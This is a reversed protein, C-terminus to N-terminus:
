SLAALWGSQAQITALLAGAVIQEGYANLHINSALVHWSNSGQTDQGGTIRAAMTTYLDCYPASLDTAAGQQLGRLTQNAALQVSTTDGSAAFNDFHRGVVIIKQCGASKLANGIVGINQRTACNITAGVAPAGSLAPSVTLLDTAQATVQVIQSNITIYSGQPFRVGSGVTVSFQNAAPTTTNAVLTTGNTSIDNTGAYIIALDPVEWQTFTAMRAIMQGTANGSIGFNRIHCSAGLANLSDELYRSYFQAAHMGLTNNFTLSDGISVARRRKSKTYTTQIARPM